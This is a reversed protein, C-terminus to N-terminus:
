KGTNIRIKILETYIVQLFAGCDCNKLIDVIM